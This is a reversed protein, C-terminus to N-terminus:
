TTVRGGPLCVSVIFHSACFTSAGLSGRTNTNITRFRETLLTRYGPALKRFEDRSQNPIESTTQLHSAIKGRRFGTSVSSNREITRGYSLQISCSAVFWYTPREFRDPRVM